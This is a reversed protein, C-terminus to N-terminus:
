YRFDAQILNISYTMILSPSIFVKTLAIFWSLAANIYKFSFNPSKLLSALSFSPTNTPGSIQFSSSSSCSVCFSLEVSNSAQFDNLCTTSLKKILYLASFKKSISQQFGTAIRGVIPNGFTM